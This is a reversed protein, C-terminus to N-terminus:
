SSPQWDANASSLIQCQFESHVHAITHFRHQLLWTASVEWTAADAYHYGDILILIIPDKLMQIKATKKIIANSILTSAESVIDPGWKVEAGAIMECVANGRPSVKQIQVLPGEKGSLVTRQLATGDQVTDAIYKLARAILEARQKSLHPIPHMALIYVGCLSGVTTAKAEVERALRRLEKSVGREPMLGTGIDHSEMVETIEVAFTEADAVLSYDPPEAGQLWAIQAVGVSRLHRTFAEKAYKEDLRM